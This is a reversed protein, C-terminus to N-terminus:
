PLFWQSIPSYQLLKQNKIWVVGRMLFVCLRAAPHNTSLPRPTYTITEVTLLWQSAQKSDRLRKATQGTYTNEDYPYSLRVVTKDKDHCNRYRSLCDKYQFPVLKCIQQIVNQRDYIYLQCQCWLYSQFKKCLWGNIHGHIFVIHLSKSTM